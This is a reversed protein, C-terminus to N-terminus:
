VSPTPPEFGEDGVLLGVAQGSRASRGGGATVIRTAASNRDKSQQDAVGPPQSQMPSLLPVSRLAASSAPPPKAPM